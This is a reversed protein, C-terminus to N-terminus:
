VQMGSLIAKAQRLAEVEQDRAEQRVEFNKMVFDCSMHLAGATNSLQELETISTRVDEEAVGLDQEAKGRAATKDIISAQKSQISLNTEKVIAEYDAQSSQEDKTVEKEMTVTEALIQEILAVVGGSAGSKEYTKFEAPPEAYDPQKIQLFGLLDMAAPAATTVTSAYVAKLVTVAKQLLVQAERHDAVITQYDKNALERDEGARKIQTNAETIDANLTDIAASLDTIDIKLGEVKSEHSSRDRLERENLLENQNLETICNDRHAIEEQKEALLETVMQDIAEKVKTFADLKGTEALDALAALRDNHTTVAEKRLAAALKAGKLSGRGVSRQVQLLSAAPNFSKQFQDYADDNSLISIAQTVASMESMRLKQRSEYETASLECKEKVTMLFGNDNV